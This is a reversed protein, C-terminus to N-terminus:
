IRAPNLHRLTNAEPSDYAYAELILRMRNASRSAKKSKWLNGTGHLTECITYDEARRRHRTSSDTM